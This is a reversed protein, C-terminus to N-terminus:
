DWGAPNVGVPWPFFGTVMYHREVYVHLHADREEGKPPSWQFGVITCGQPVIVDGINTEEVKFLKEADIETDPDAVDYVHILWGGEESM